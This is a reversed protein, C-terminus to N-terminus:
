PEPKGSGVACSHQPTMLLGVIGPTRVVMVGILMPRGLGRPLAHAPGKVGPGRTPSFVTPSWLAFM